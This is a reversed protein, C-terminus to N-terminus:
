AAAFSTPGADADADADLTTIPRAQVLQWIGALAAEVDVPTGLRHETEIALRALEVLQDDCLAPATSASRSRVVGGAARPDIRMHKDGVDRKRVALSRKDIIAIDPTVENDVLTPGLGCTAHVLVEDDAGTLPNVTFAVASVSAPVLAQVVVAMSAEALPLGRQARYAVAQRSWLSAWCKRVAAGVGKLPVGLQTEHLGAFSHSGADEDAASSRVALLRVGAARARLRETAAAIEEVLQAPLQAEFAITRLEGFDAAAVLTALRGRLSADDLYHELAATTVCFAAPCPLAAAMLRELGAAKGGVLATDAPAGAGLDVTLPATPAAAAGRGRGALPHCVIISGSM